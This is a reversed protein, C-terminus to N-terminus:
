TASFGDDTVGGDSIFHIFMNGSTATVDGPLTNGSFKGLFTGAASTGDYIAVSDYGSETNMKTFSLTISSAGGSPSITWDCNQNNHYALAGSGDSVTGSAETLVTSGSCFNLTTSYSASWGAATVSGNSTFEIYMNGSTATVDVPTSSGSFSGLLTGGTDTGDYVSVVDNTSETNFSSFSLTISAADPPSITWDCSSNNTYNNTGSGDSINNSLETFVTSGSCGTGEVISINDISIDSVNNPGVLIYFRFKVDSSLTILDELYVMASNWDTGQTTSRTWIDNYTGDNDDDAQLKLTGMNAGGYYSDYM